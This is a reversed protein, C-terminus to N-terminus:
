HQKEAEKGERSGHIMDFDAICLSRLGGRRTRSCLVPPPHETNPWQCPFRRAANASWQVRGVRFFFVGHTICGISPQGHNGGPDLEFKGRHIQFFERDMLPYAQKKTGEERILLWM